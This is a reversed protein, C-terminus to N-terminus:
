QRLYIHQDSGRSQVEASDQSHRSNAAQMGHWLAKIKAQVESFSVKRQLQM